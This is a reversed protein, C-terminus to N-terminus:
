DKMQEPSAPRVTPENRLDREDASLPRTLVGYLDPRRQRRLYSGSNLWEPNSWTRRELPHEDLDAVGRVVGPASVGGALVQGFCNYLISSMPNRMLLQGESVYTSVGLPLKHTLARGPLVARYLGEENEGQRMTTWLLLEAGKMEYVRTLEPFNIDYCILLGLRGFPTTIPEIADGADFYDCEGPAAHTKRYQGLVEGKPGFVVASNFYRGADAEHLMVDPIVVMNHKQALASIEKMWPSDLRLSNAQRVADRGKAHAAHSEKTCHHDAFEPLMVIQCGSQGADGVMKLLETRRQAVPMVEMSVNILGITIPRSM